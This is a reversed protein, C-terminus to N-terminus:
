FLPTLANLHYTTEVIVRHGAVVMTPDTYEVGGPGTDYKINVSVNEPLTLILTELVRTNIGSYDGPDVMGYRAGERAANTLNSYVFLIRSVEITGVLVLLVIPLILAFEVLGQGRNQRKKKM